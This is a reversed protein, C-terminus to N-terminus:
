WLWEWWWWHLWTLDIETKFILIIISISGSSSSSSLSPLSSLWISWPRSSTKNESWIIVSFLFTASHDRPAFLSFGFSKSWQLHEQRRLSHLWGSFGYFPCSNWFWIHDNVQGVNKRHEGVFRPCIANTGNHGQVKRNIHICQLRM